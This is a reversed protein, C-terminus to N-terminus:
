LGYAILVYFVKYTDTAHSAHVFHNITHEQSQIKAKNMMGLLLDYDEHSLNLNPKANNSSIVVYTDITALNNVVNQPAKNKFKLNLPFGHKFYCMDVSQNEMGCFTCMKSSNSSARNPNAM